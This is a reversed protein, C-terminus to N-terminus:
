RNENNDIDGGTFSFEKFDEPIELLKYTDQFTGDDFYERVKIYKGNLDKLESM